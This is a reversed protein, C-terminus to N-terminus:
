RKEHTLTKLQQCVSHVFKWWVFNSMNFYSLTVYIHSYTANNLGLEPYRMRLM